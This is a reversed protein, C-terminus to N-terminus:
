EEEQKDPGRKGSLSEIEVAWVRTRALVAAAYPWDARGTYHRMIENLGQLRQSEDVLEVVRGRGIVSAYAFCFACAREPHELLRPEEEVEFCVRPNIALFDLKLGTLATHFFLREGDYGFSLPVLYPENERAMALRCVPAAHLLQDLESRELIERDRRRMGEPTSNM